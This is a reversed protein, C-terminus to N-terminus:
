KSLLKEVGDWNAPVGSELYAACRKVYIQAVPDGPAKELVSQFAEQAENFNRAYYLDIAKQFSEDGAKKLSLIEPPDGDMVEYLAVPDSKGKVTVRDVFRFHFKGEDKLTGYIRDSVLIGAGYMKTLSEIRSALNVADSIVTGEMREAEGITGLMLHGQHLGIGVSVAVMGHEIRGQNWKRIVSHMEVAARLADEPSLPFLAMIADGIYKDIFGGNARIVPGVRRLYSNIFDFNEKPSMKESLSTFSRIDSFLVTMERHVQDGLTVETISKKDLIRLFEFPVFRKSAANFLSLETNLTETENHLRVFRNALILAMGLVFFTFSYTTLTPLNILAQGALVDLIGTVLLTLIGIAMLYADRNKARIERFIIFLIGTATFAWTVQVVQNNLFDWFRLDTFFAIGMCAIPVTNLAAFLWDFYRVWRATAPLPFYSRIFFYFSPFFMWLSIYQIRKLNYLEFGLEYKLQTRLTSYIVLALVFIAFFLNERDHRRRIFFLLFYLGVALYFALTLMQWLNELYFDKLILRAPGIETRDRYIGMEHKLYGKVQILLVNVRDTRLVDRPIEYIRLHDYAQARSDEWRGTEGILVGNLYVRDRDSIEGLRLALASDPTGSLFFAKRYWVVNEKNQKFIEKAADQPMLNAPVRVTHWGENSLEQGSSNAESETVMSESAPDLHGGRAQWIFETTSGISQIVSPDVHQMRGEALLTNLCFFWSSVFIFRRFLKHGILTTRATFFFSRPFKV